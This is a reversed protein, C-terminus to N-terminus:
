LRYPLSGAEGPLPAPGYKNPAGSGALFGNLILLVLWGIGPLLFWLLWWASHGRDHLRAVSSSISPALTFLAIVTSLPGGTWTYVSSPDTAGTSLGPYGLATDAASALVSLALIPLAYQTWWTRRTIRGRRVYWESFSMTEGNREAVLTGSVRSSGRGVRVGAARV